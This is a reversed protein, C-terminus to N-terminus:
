SLTSRANTITHYSKRQPRGRTTSAAHGDGAASLLTTGLKKLLAGLRVQEEETLVSALDAVYAAHRPFVSAFLRKGRPTLHVTIARRDQRSRERRVLGQRELNDVVVTMNGGSVLSKRCLDGPNMPGKHGLIELVGFQAPTLGFSRIQEGTCRAFVASARALKVWLTLALDAKHGYRRTTEM